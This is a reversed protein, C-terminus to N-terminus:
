GKIAMNAGPGITFPISFATHKTSTTFQFQAELQKYNDQPSIAKIAENELQSDVGPLNSYFADFNFKQDVNQLPLLQLSISLDLLDRARVKAANLYEMNGAVPDDDCTLLM